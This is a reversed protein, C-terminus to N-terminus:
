ASLASGTQGRHSEAASSRGRQDWSAHADPVFVTPDGDAGTRQSRGSIRVWHLQESGKGLRVGM